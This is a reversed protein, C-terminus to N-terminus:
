PDFAAWATVFASQIFSALAVKKYLGSWHEHDETIKVEAEIM